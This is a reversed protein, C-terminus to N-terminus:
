RSQGVRKAHIGVRGFAQFPHDGGVRSQAVHATVDTLQDIAAVVDILQRALHGVLFDDMQQVVIAEGISFFQGVVLGREGFEALQRFSNDSDQELKGGIRRWHV